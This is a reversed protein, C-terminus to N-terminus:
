KLRKGEAALDSLKQHLEPFDKRFSLYPLYNEGNQKAFFHSSEGRYCIIGTDENFIRYAFTMKIGKYEVLRVEISFPDDFRLYNLFNESASAAPIICGLKELERYDMINENCWQLRAEEILRLYNSHHVVGMRDTEYYKVRRKYTFM